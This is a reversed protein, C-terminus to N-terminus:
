AHKFSKEQIFVRMRRVFETAEKHYADFQSGSIEKLQRHTILKSLNYFKRMTVAYRHELLGKRVLTAELMDAVHDPSPPIENMCMLSAHAADIVAWYLDLTGQLLHWKANHLTAPARGFYVWVSEMTPRIRGQELLMQMPEFFGTDILAIGDRMVNIAIPDGSRLMEWFTSLKLTTIHLKESVKHILGQIVIRYAEVAEPTMIIKVDDVILLIDIDDPPTDTQVRARSGFLVAARLFNGLEKHALKVFQYATDVHTKHYKHANTLKREEIKFDM